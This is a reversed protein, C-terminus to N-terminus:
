IRTRNEHPEEMRFDAEGAIAQAVALDEPTTIKLNRPDGPTIHVRYGAYEMLMCDDTVPLKEAAKCAVRYLNQSFVQPTQCQWLTERNPTEAIFGDQVVKITDKVKVALASAGFKRADMICQSILAPLIFPRAGDHIALLPLSPSVEQLGYAVSEKRDAGGEVVAKLKEIGYKRALRAFEGTDQPRAVVVIEAIEACRQFASLTRAIVPVGGMELLQKNRGMRSASGAAVIIAATDPGHGMDTEVESIRERLTYHLVSRNVIKGM